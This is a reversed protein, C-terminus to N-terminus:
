EKAGHPTPRGQGTSLTPLLPQPEASDELCLSVVGYIIAIFAAIRAAQMFTKNM